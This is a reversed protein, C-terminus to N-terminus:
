YYPNWGMGVLWENAVPNVSRKGDDTPDPFQITVCINGDRENIEVPLGMETALSVERSTLIAEKEDLPAWGTSMFTLYSMDDSRLESREVGGSLTFPSM